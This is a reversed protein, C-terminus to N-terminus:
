LMNVWQTVLNNKWKVTFGSSGCLPHFFWNQEKESSVVTSLSAFVLGNVKRFLGKQELRTAKHEQWGQPERIGAAELVKSISSFVLLGDPIDTSVLATKESPVLEQGIPLPEMRLWKLLTITQHVVHLVSGWPSQFPLRQSLDQGKM